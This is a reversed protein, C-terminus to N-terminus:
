AVDLPSPIDLSPSAGTGEVSSFLALSPLFRQKFSRSTFRLLLDANIDASASPSVALASRVATPRAAAAEPVVFDASAVAVVAPVVVAAVVVVDM